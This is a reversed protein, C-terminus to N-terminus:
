KMATFISIIMATIGTIIAVIVGYKQYNISKTNLELNKSDIKEKINAANITDLALAGEKTIAWSDGDYEVYYIYDKAALSSCIYHITDKGEGLIGAIEDEDVTHDDHQRAALLSLIDLELNKEM